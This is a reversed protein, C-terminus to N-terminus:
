AAQDEEKLGASTTQCPRQNFLACGPATCSSIMKQWGPDPADAETGGICQYCMANIAKRLSKPDAKSKRVWNMEPEIKIGAERMERNV